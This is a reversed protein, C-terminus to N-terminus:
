REEVQKEELPSTCFGCFRFGEPNERGCSPCVPM